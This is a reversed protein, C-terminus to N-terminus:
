KSGPFPFNYAIKLGFFGAGSGDGQTSADCLYLFREISVTSPIATSPTHIVIETTATLTSM